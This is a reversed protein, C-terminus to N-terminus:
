RAHPLSVNLFAALHPVHAPTEFWFTQWGAAKAAELAAPTDDIQLCDSPDAGVAKAAHRFFAPDTKMHGVKASHFCEDFHKKFGMDNWLYAAREHTQHTSLYTNKGSAKLHAALALTDPLPNNDKEHWYRILQGIKGTGGFQPALVTLTERLDAKGTIVPDIAGSRFLVQEFIEPNIGLDVFLNKSWMRRYQLNCHFGDVLVGDVDFFLHQPAM